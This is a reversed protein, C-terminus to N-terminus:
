PTEIMKNYIDVYKQYQKNKEYQTAREVPTFQTYDASTVSEIAAYVGRIDGAAVVIGSKCDVVEPVATQDYVVAPTGCALAEATVMGMTEEYSLNVFVDAATYFRALEHLDSIHELAIVSDPMQKIQDSTLGVIVLKYKQTDILEALEYLDFLGKKKYWVSSVALIMKKNSIGMKEKVHNPTPYFVNLDIGNPIVAVEYKGLFSQKVVEALWKSPTVIMMTNISTFLKRKDNMNRSSQDIWLSKPYEHVLPCLRCQSMWKKCGIYSFHVCHGTMPWCDHLTWVVPIGSEALYNFLMRINIYYGHLNHLQIIDPSFRKIKHILRRTQIVSFFGTRDTIRALINHVYYGWKNNIHILDERKVGSAVGIGYAVKVQNGQDKLLAYIDSTIRGTSGSGCVSNIILVKVSLDGKYLKRAKSVLFSIDM